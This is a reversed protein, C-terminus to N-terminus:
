GEKKPGWVEMERGGFIHIEKIATKESINALPGGGDFAHPPPISRFPWFLLSSIPGWSQSIAEKFSLSPFTQPPVSHPRIKKAHVMM